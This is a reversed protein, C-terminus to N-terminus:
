GREQKVARSLAQAQAYPLAICRAGLAAAIAQAAASPQPSTDILLAATATGCFARAAGLADRAAAERGPAGDRAINARGDTLLVVLPTAGSRRVAAAMTQAADIGAALPTGGGGPLGALQRKARVLSRTPALLVQAGAGRFGIVAVRDRRAYCDALLLEVAGKAEALRHLAQSGSADIAFITTTARRQVRRQVRLDDRTVHVRQALVREGQPISPHVGARGSGTSPDGQPISPSRSPKSVEARVATKRVDQAQRLAAARRVKQWPAAARLTEILALRAGGRPEGRVAGIVRGRQRSATNQGMRGADGRRPGPARGAALLALLGAPIAAQAAEIVRDDLPRDIDPRQKDEQGQSTSDSAEPPAAEPESAEDAPPAQTARPALVLRAALAADEAQVEGRGDLAAAIRAVCLAQWSARASSVGLAAAAAVLAEVVADSARVARWRERAQVVRADSVDVLAADPRVALALRDLLAPPPAEDDEKGEDLAVVAIRAGDDQAVCLRASLAVSMREAMAAIVVGGEAQALLGREAVPKGSALTAALDLGGLLADDRTHVPLRRWPMSPPLLRRLADLWADREPGAGCRLRVGGLAHPAVAFVELAATPDSL